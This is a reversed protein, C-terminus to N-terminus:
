ARVSLVKFIPSDGWVQNKYDLSAEFWLSRDVGAEGVNPNRAHPVVGVVGKKKHENWLGLVLWHRIPSTLFICRPKRLLYRWCFKQFHFAATQLSFLFVFLGSFSPGWHIVQPLLLLLLKMSLRLPNLHFHDGKM